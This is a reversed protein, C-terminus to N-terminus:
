RVDLAHACCMTHDGELSHIIQVDLRCACKGRRQSSQLNSINVAWVVLQLEAERSIVCRRTM